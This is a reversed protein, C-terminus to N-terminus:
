VNRGTQEYVKPWAREFAALAAELSAARGTDGRISKEGITIVWLWEAQGSGHSHVIRGVTEDDRLVAFEEAFVHSLPRLLFAM